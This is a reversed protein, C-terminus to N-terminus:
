LYIMTLVNEQKVTYFYGAITCVTQRAEDADIDYRSDKLTRLITQMFIAGNGGVFSYFQKMISKVTLTLTEMFSYHATLSGDALTLRTKNLFDMMSFKKHFLM